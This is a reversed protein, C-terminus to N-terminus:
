SNLLAKLIENEKDITLNNEDFSIGTETEIFILNLLQWAM